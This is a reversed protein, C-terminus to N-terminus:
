FCIVCYTSYLHIMLYKYYNNRFTIIKEWKYCKQYDL